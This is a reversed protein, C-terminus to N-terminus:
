SGAWAARGWRIARMQTFVGVPGNPQGRTWCYRHRLGRDLVRPPQVVPMAFLNWYM